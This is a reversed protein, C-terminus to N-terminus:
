FQLKHLGLAGHLTGNLRHRASKTARGHPQGGPGTKTRRASVWLVANNHGVVDALAGRVDGQRYEGVYQIAEQAPEGEGTGKVGKISGRTKHVPERSM